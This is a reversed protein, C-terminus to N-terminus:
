TTVETQSVLLSYQVDLSFQGTEQMGFKLSGKKSQGVVPALKFFGSGGEERSRFGSKGEAILRAKEAAKLASTARLNPKVESLVVVRIIGKKSDAEARVEIRPNRLGSHDKANQLAILMIDHILVLSSAVIETDSLLSSVQIEPDFGPLCSLSFKQAMEIAETLTFSKGAFDTNTYKFWSASEDLKVQVENSRKGIEADFTLFEDTNGIADKVSTRLEDVFGTIQNKLDNEIFTRTLVLSPELGPWLLAEATNLFDDFSEDLSVIAKVLEVINTTMGLFILGHPTDKTRVQFYRDKADVLIADFQESFKEFAALIESRPTQSAPTLMNTWVYNPKYPGFEDARTTVLDAVELPARISGVFSQHRVGKSLFYDLGFSANTLFEDRLRQLINYLVIDAESEPVFTTQGSSPNKTMEAILEDYPKFDKIAVETLDRYRSYEEALNQRAWHRLQSIDVYIRSSDVILQGDAFNLQRKLDSAEDQYVKANAPDVETLLYCISAREELVERSGRVARSVDLVNPVCVQHLFYTLVTRGVEIQDPDLESPKSFHSKKLYEAVAFRLMSATRPNQDQQWRLHIAVASTLLDSNKSYDQWVFNATTSQIRQKMPSFVAASCVKSIIDIVASKSFTRNAIELAAFQHFLHFAGTQPFNANTALRKSAEHLDGRRVAGIASSLQVSPPLKTEKSNNGHFLLWFEKAYISTYSQGASSLFTSLSDHSIADEPGIYKSNLGLPQADFEILSEESNVGEAYFLLSRFFPLAAFNRSLKTLADHPDFLKTSTFMAALYRVCRRRIRREKTRKLKGDSILWSLYITDWVDESSPHKARRTYNRMMTRSQASIMADLSDPNRIQLSEMNIDSGIANRLKALRFDDIKHLRSLCDGLVPWFRSFHPDHVIKQAILIFEEYQDILNHSQSVRLTDSMGEPSSPVEGLLIHRLYRRIETSFHPHEDIRRRTNESFRLASTRPENRVSCHYTVFRLLGQKFTAQIESVIQKQAELGRDEHTLAIKLQVSWLSSGFLTEIENLDKLAESMEDALVRNQIGETIERFKSISEHNQNFVTTLWELEVELRVRKSEAVGSLHEYGSLGLQKRLLLSREQGDIWSIFEAYDNRQLLNRAKLYLEKLGNIYKQAPAVPESTTFQGSRFGAVLGRFQNQLQILKGSDCSTQAM